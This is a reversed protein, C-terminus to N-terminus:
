KCINVAIKVASEPIVALISPITLVNTMTPIIIMTNTRTKETIVRKLNM